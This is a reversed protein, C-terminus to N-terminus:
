ESWCDDDTDIYRPNIYGSILINKQIINHLESIKLSAESITLNTNIKDRKAGLAKSMNIIATKQKNTADM